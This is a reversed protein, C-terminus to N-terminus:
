GGLRALRAGRRACQLAMEQGLGASAGTILIHKGEFLYAHARRRRRLALAALVALAAAAFALLAM